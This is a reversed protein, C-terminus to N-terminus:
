KSKARSIHVCEITRTKEQLKEWLEYILFCRLWYTHIRIFLKRIGQKSIQNSPHLFTSINLHSFCKWNKKLTTWLPMKITRKGTTWLNSGQCAWQFPYSWQSLKIHPDMQSLKLPKFSCKKNYSKLAQSLASCFIHLPWHPFSPM